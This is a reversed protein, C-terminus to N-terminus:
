TPPPSCCGENANSGLCVSEGETGESVLASNVAATTRTTNVTFSASSRRSSAHSWSASAVETIFVALSRRLPAPAPAPRHSSADMSHAVMISDAAAPSPFTLTRKARTAGRM